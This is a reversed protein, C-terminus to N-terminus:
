QDKGGIKCAIKVSRPDDARGATSVAVRIGCVKCEVAYFGCRKAPHPLTALCARKAGASCDLDIGDPFEPNPKCKPERGLDIWDIDFSGRQKM